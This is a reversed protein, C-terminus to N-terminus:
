GPKKATYFAVTPQAGVDPAELDVFGAARLDAEFAEKRFVKVMPAKGLWRMVTLIPRYPIWGDGLCATSTVFFGGPRLLDYMQKLAAAPDDVLHLISYACVGDLSGPEFTTFTEDFPGVHFEVNDVGEAAAKENAIRAMESSCDLGHVRGAAPALRLALSGTGCGIDLVTCGPRMLAKTIEIKRTFAEPREVPQAAYKEAIGNWFEADVTM